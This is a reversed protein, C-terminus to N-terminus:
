DCLSEALKVAAAANKSYGDANIEDGWEQNVPAGGIIIKYKERLGREKLAEIVERQAPMTTTLLASLAIIDAQQSEAQEIFTLPRVDVGLDIVEFGGVKLMTAVMDKGISHLDGNVTGIVVRGKPKLKTKSALLMPQLIEMVATFVDASMQLEPLFMEGTQFRRGVEEMAPSMGQEIMEIVDSDTKIFANAITMVKEKDLDLIGKYMEQIIGEKEM